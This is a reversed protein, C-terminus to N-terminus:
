LCYDHSKDDNLQYLIPGKVNPWGASRDVRVFVNSINIASTTKVLRKQSYTKCTTKRKALTNRM